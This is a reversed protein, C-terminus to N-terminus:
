YEDDWMKEYEEALEAEVRKWYAKEYSENYRVDAAIRAAEIGTVTTKSFTMEREGKVVVKDTDYSTVIDGEHFVIVHTGGFKVLLMGRKKERWFKDDDKLSHHTLVGKSYKKGNYMFFPSELVSKLQTMVMDITADNLTLQMKM